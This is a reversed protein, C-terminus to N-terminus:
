DTLSPWKWLSMTQEYSDVRKVEKMFIVDIQDGCDNIVQGSCFADEVMGIIFEDKSLVTHPSLRVSLVDETAHKSRYQTLRSPYSTRIRDRNEIGWKPCM